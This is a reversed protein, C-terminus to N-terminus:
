MHCMSKLAKISNAYPLASVKGTNSFWGNRLEEINALTTDFIFYVRGNERHTKQMPVGATQLYAAFYLDSTKWESESSEVKKM